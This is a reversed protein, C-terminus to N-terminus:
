FFFFFLFNQKMSLETMNTFYEKAYFVSQFKSTIVSPHFINQLKQYLKMQKYYLFTKHEHRLLFTRVTANIVDLIIAFVFWLFSATCFFFVLVEEGDVKQSQTWATLMTSLTYKCVFILVCFFYM